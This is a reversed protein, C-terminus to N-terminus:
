QAVRVRAPRLIRDGLRYGQELIEIVQGEHFGDCKEFTAAEHVTPDFLQGEAPIREVGESELIMQLKRQILQIGEVWAEFDAGAPHDKLARQIDDLVSLYRTLISAAATAHAAELDREVRRKYNLFEARSRQWGDLYEDAQAKAVELEKQLVQLPDEAAPAEAAPAEAAPAEAAPTEAAPAAVERWPAILGEGPQEEPQGAALSEPAAPVPTPKAEVPAAKERAKKKSKTV